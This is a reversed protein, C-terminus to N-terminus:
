GTAIAAPWVGVFCIFNKSGIALNSSAVEEQNPVNLTKESIDKGLIFSLLGCGLM